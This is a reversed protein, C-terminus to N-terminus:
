FTNELSSYTSKTKQIIRSPCSPLMAQGILYEYKDIKDALLASIKTPERNVDYQPKEDGIKDDSAM